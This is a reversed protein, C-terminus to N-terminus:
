RVVPFVHLDGRPGEPAEDDEAAHGEGGEGAGAEAGAEADPEDDAEDDDDADVLGEGEVTWVEDPEADAPIELALPAGLLELELTEGRLAAWRKRPMELELFLDLDVAWLSPGVPEGQRYWGAPVEMGARFRAHAEFLDDEDRLTKLGARDEIHHQIEHEITERLEAEVDFGSDMRALERFSGYYLHVISHFREFGTAETLPSTQCEGLTFVDDLYPHSKRDRHVEITEIGELFEPPFGAALEQARASFADFDM